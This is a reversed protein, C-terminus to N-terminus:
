ILGDRVAIAVAASRSNVGLKGLIHDVHTTATRPSIFLADAVERSSRGAAVLRLVDLERDSLRPRPAEIRDLPKKTALTSPRPLAAIMSTLDHPTMRAGAAHAATFAADGLATRLNTMSAEYESAERERRPSDLEHHMADVTGYLTAAQRADGDKVLLVALDEAGEMLGFRDGSEVLARISDAFIARTSAIDGRAHAVKGIRAQTVAAGHADGIERYVSQAEDFYGAASDVDGSFMRIDGLNVLCGAITGSHRLQRQLTLAETLLREAKPFQGRMIALAGLNSTMLADGQVDGHARVIARCELWCAEARDYDDQHYAVSGLNGLTVAVLRGDDIERAVVAARAHQDFALAFNGRNRAVTGLGDWAQALTRRDGAAHALTAAQEFRAAAIDYDGHDEALFAAGILGSLRVPTPVAAGTELSREIWARGEEYHGRTEWFRWIAACIRLATEADGSQLTWELAARVNGQEFELDDMWAAQDLGLLRPQGAEVFALFYAAHAVRVADEEDLARLQEQGFERLTELMTIRAEREPAEERHMLSHDVLRGLVDLFAMTPTESRGAVTELADIRGGGTFISARRFIAQEEPTLLDYSWAIAQRMTRLREPVDAREGTLVHLRDTLRALLAPLSLVNTRAAALELALPVGDLRRCIDAIVPAERETVTLNPRIARVRQIFLAAADSQRLGDLTLGGEPPLSLPALPYRQEGELHLPSRSTVLAKLGPCQALLLAILPAAAVIQEFNDLLLLSQRDTLHEILAADDLSAALGAAQAIAAAVLAPDRIAALSVFIVGGAFDDSSDAAARLALRTKGIGGPGTITLLRVDPNGLLACAAAIEAQRGILPSLPSPVGYQHSSTLLRVSM